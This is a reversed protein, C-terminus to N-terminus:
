PLSATPRSPAPPGTSRQFSGPRARPLRAVSVTTLVFVLGGLSLAAIQATRGHAQAGAGLLFLSIALLVTHLVYMDGHDNADNAAAVARGARQDLVLIQDQTALRYDPRAFPLPADEKGERIDAIWGELAPRLEPRAHRRLFEAEKQHGSQTASIYSLFVGVDISMNRNMATFERTGAFQAAEAVTIGHTQIGSWLSAQYACWASSVSALGLLVTSVIQIM